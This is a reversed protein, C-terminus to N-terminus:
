ARTHHDIRGTGRNGQVERHCETDTILLAGDTIHHINQATFLRTDKAIVIILHVGKLHDLSYTPPLQPPDQPEITALVSRFFVNIVGNGKIPMDMRNDWVGLLHMNGNHWSRRAWM